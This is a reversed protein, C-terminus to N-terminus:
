VSVSSLICQEDMYTSSVFNWVCPNCISYNDVNVVVNKYPISLLLIAFVKRFFESSSSMLDNKEKIHTKEHIYTRDQQKRHGLLLQFSFLYFLIFIRYETHTM